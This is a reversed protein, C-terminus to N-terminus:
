PTPYEKRTPRCCLFHANLMLKYIEERKRYGLYKVSETMEMQEIQKVLLREDQGTGMILLKYDPHKDLVLKFAKLLVDQRKQLMDIRGVSVICKATEKYEWREKTAGVAPNPIVAYKVSKFSEFYDAAKQTQFAMFNAYRYLKRRFKETLRRSTYPDVRESVLLRFPTLLKAVMLAYFSHDGFNIVIDYNGKKVLKSLNVANGIFGITNRSVFDSRRNANELQFINIGHPVSTQKFAKIYCVDVVNEKALAEAVWLLMKSAGGYSIIERVFLIRAM